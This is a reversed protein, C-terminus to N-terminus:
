PEDDRVTVTIPSTPHADFELELRFTEGDTLPAALDDLMVHIAAQSSCSTTARRSRSRRCTTWRCRATARRVGDRPGDGRAAVAPDVRVAVLTDDDGRARTMYVAGITPRGADAPDM